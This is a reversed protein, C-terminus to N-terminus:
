TYLVSHTLTVLLSINAEEENIRIVEQGDNAVTHNVKLYAGNMYQAM